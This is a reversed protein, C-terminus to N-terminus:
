VYILGEEPKGFVKGHGQLYCMASILALLADLHHWTIIEKKCLRIDPHVSEAVLDACLKLALKNGKYGRKKLDYKTAQAKPYTEFVEIGMAVCKDKIAIARATLGGLFMPSMAKLEVDAHRFNYCECGSINCYRGPLSLPADLFIIDPKYHDVANLIFADADVGKETDLFDVRMDRFAAIVTNGSRKSGFDIGFIIKDNM